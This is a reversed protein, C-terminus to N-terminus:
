AAAPTDDLLTRVTELNQRLASSHESSAVRTVRALHVKGEEELSRVRRAIAEIDLESYRPFDRLAEILAVEYFNLDRREVNSRRHFRVGELTRVPGAVAVEPIAPVQTSLGLVQTASWGAPGAGKGGGAALAADLLGPRGPGFRSRVGKWYLGNRIRVLEGDAHLRSLATLVAPRSGPLSAPRIFTGVPARRVKTRVKDATTM